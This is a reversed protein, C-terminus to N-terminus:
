SCTEPIDLRNQQEMATTMQDSEIKFSKAHM